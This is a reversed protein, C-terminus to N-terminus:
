TCFRYLKPSIYSFGEQFNYFTTIMLQLCYTVYVKNESMAICVFSICMQLKKMKFSMHSRSQLCLSCTPAVIDQLQPVGKWYGLSVKTFSTVWSRVGDISLPMTNPQNCLTTGITMRNHVPLLWFCRGLSKNGTVGGSCTM